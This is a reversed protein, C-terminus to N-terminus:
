FDIFPVLDCGTCKLCMTKALGPDLGYKKLIEAELKALKLLRESSPREMFCDGARLPHPNIPRLIPTVGMQALAEVGDRVSDDSEGLGIIFNSFVRNKGFVDVAERLRDLIYDLSLDGCVKKFIKRDMTEVNYKVESAGAEYFKRSCGETPYVSVGIPVDYKKLAPLLKLVREVEGEISTEVGSTLSIARLNGAQLVEEVISLVEEESKVHGQLKPVPCYKCDFVCRECLTIFAQDPCHAPARELKGRVLEKGQYFVGVNGEGEVKLISLASDKNISLRM